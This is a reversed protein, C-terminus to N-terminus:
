SMVAIWLFLVKKVAFSVSSFGEHEEEADEADEATFRNKETGLVFKGQQVLAM